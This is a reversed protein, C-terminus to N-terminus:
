EGRYIYSKHAFGGISRESESYLSKASERTEVKVNNVERVSAKGKEADDLFALVEQTSPPMGAAGNKEGIAETVSANLLKSWMKQFLGNSPYIDGSNIKGNVAFVYGVIDNDGGAADALAKLYPEKTEALKENELSLQLSTRSAGSAIPSGVNEELKRQTQEVDAWIARQRMSVEAARAAPNANVAEPAPAFIAMKSERSSASLGSSAFRTADEAGRQTWRGHEVCFSSIPIRGSKKPVLFSVGIVRDQRGGKVIDGAQIFVEEDGLNELSLENVSGTEDVRIKSQALAEELTLPVPGKDAEGHVFYLSLNEHTIPGSIRYGQAAQGDPAGLTIFGISFAACSLFSRSRM